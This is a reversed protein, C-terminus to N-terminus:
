APQWQPLLIVTDDDAVRQEWIAEVKMGIKVEDLPVGPMNGIVRLEPADALSVLQVGGALSDLKSRDRDVVGNVIVLRPGDIQPIQGDVDAPVPDPATAPGFTLQGLTKHPAYRWSEDRKTPLSLSGVQELAATRSPLIALSM